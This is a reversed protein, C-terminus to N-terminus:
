LKLITSYQYKKIIMETDQIEASTEDQRTMSQTQADCYGCKNLKAQGASM